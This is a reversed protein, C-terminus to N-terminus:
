RDKPLGLVGEAIHNRQIENTGGGLAYLWSRLHHLLWAASSSTLHDDGVQGAVLQGPLGEIDVAADTIRRHLQSFLLKVVSSAPSLRGTDALERLVRELVATLVDADALLAALQHRRVPDDIPRGGAWADDSAARAILSDVLHNLTVVFRLFGPGREASLVTHVVPWGANEDGVRDRAPVAVDDLFIECFESEGTMQRIPRVTIGPSRMDLLFFSIGRHRALETSTRALLIARDAVDARSAWVKQGNIVYSDGERRASTRLSALDSGADPESFAQCWVTSGDLIAPLHRSRQEEDGHVILARGAHNLATYFTQPWRENARLFEQHMVIEFAPPAEVGGAWRPWQPAALGAAHLERIWARDFSVIEDAPASVPPPTQEHASLWERVYVRWAHESELAETLRTPVAPPSM